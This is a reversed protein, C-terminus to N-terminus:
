LAFWKVAELIGWLVLLLGDVVFSFYYEKRAPNSRAVVIAALACWSIIGTLQSTTAIGFNRNLFITGALFFTMACLSIIISGKVGVLAPFTKLQAGDYHFDRIDFPMTLSFIMCFFSVFWVMVAPSFLLKGTPDSATAPLLVCITSWVLAVMFIKFAPIERLKIWKKKGPILPFSYGVSIIAPLIAIVRSRFYLHFFSWGAAIAAIASTIAIFYKHDINWKHRIFATDIKKNQFAGPLRQLNYLFFTGCFVFIFLESRLQFNFLLQSTRVLAVGCLAM